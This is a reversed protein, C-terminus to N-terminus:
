KNIYKNLCVIEKKINIKKIFYRFGLSMYIKNLKNKNLLLYNKFIDSKEDLLVPGYKYEFNSYKRKGRIFRIVPYYKGYDLCIVEKDIMFGLDCISKRLFLYDNNSSVIISDIKNLINKDKKLISVITNSGLGSLVLTDVGEKYSSLGDGLSIDIKNELNYKKINEKAKELPKENIDSAIARCNKELCVYIDLLGHDCGIDLIFTNDPVLDGICKLRKSIKM